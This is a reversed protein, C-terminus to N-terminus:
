DWGLRKRRWAVQAGKSGEELYCVGRCHRAARLDVERMARGRSVGTVPDRSSRVPRIRM